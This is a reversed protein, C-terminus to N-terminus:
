EVDFLAPNGTQKNMREIYTPTAQLENWVIRTAEAIQEPTLEETEDEATRVVMEPM